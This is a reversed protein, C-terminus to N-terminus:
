KVVIRANDKTYFCVKGTGEFVRNATRVLNQIEEDSPPETGELLYPRGLAKYKNVGFEHYILLEYEKVGKLTKIFEATAKINEVSDNCGPVVPTRIIIPVGFEDIKSINSLILENGVGTLEKHKATDMQKIDMFMGDIYPLAEKFQDFNGSGCSELQVNIGREHCVKAINRLYEPHTLPEGGSFTVGGGKMDYFIKDKQIEKYLEEVSYEKGIAYKAGAYCRETCKFCHVCKSRDIRPGDEKISIAQEPCVKM